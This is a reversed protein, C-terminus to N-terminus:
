IQLPPLQTNWHARVDYLLGCLKWNVPTRTFILNWSEFMSFIVAKWYNVTYVTGIKTNVMNFVTTDQQRFRLVSDIRKESEQFFFFPLFCKPGNLLVPNYTLLYIFPFNILKQFCRSAFFIYACVCVIM